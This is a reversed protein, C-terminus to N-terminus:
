GTSKVRSTAPESAAPEGLVEHELREERPVPVLGGAGPHLWDLVVAMPAVLVRYSEEDIRHEAALAGAADWAAAWFAWDSSDHSLAATMAEERAVMAAHRVLSRDVPSMSRQIAAWAAARVDAPTRRWAGAVAEIEDPGLDLIRVIFGIVRHSGPGFIDIM